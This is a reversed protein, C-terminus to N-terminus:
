HSIAKSAGQIAESLSVGVGVYAIHPVHSNACQWIVELANKSSRTVDYTALDDKMGTCSRLNPDITTLDLLEELLEGVEFNASTLPTVFVFFHGNQNKWIFFGMGKKAWRDFFEVVGPSVLEDFCLKKRVDDAKKGLLRFAQRLAMSICPGGISPDAIEGFVGGKIKVQANGDQFMGQVMLTKNHM